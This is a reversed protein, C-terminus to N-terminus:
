RGYPCRQGERPCAVLARSVYRLTKSYYGWVADAGRSIDDNVYKMRADLPFSAEGAFEHEEGGEQM